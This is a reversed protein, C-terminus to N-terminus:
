GMYFSSPRTGYNHSFQEPWKQLLEWHEWHPKLLVKDVLKQRAATAQCLNRFAIFIGCEYCIGATIAAIAGEQM